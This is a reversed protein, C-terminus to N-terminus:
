DWFQKLCCLHVMQDQAYESFVLADNAFLLHSVEVGEKRCIVM